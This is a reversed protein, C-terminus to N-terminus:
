IKLVVKEFIKFVNFYVREDRSIIRSVKAAAKVYIYVEMLCRIEDLDIVGLIVMYDILEVEVDFDDEVVMNVLEWVM